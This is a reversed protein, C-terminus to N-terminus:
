FYERPEDNAPKSRSRHGIEGFGAGYAPEELTIPIWWREGETFYYHGVLLTGYKTIFSYTDCYHVGGPFGWSDQGINTAHKELLRLLSDHFMSLEPSNLYRM